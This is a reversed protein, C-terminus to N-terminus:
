ARASSNSRSPVARLAAFIVLGIWSIASIVGGLRFSRPDFAHKVPAVDPSPKLRWLAAGEPLPASAVPEAITPRADAPLIILEVGLRRLTTEDPQGRSGSQAQDLLAEYQASSIPRPATNVLPVDDLLAYRGALTQREWAVIEALRDDSSQASFEAPWWRGARFTRPREAVKAIASRERWLSAPATPVLWQNAVALDMACVLLLISELRPQFDSAYVVPAFGLLWAAAVAVLSMQILSSVIDTWAGFTDFPGFASDVAGAGLTVYHSAVGAAVAAIASGFGLIMLIRRLRTNPQSLARDWGLAALLSIGLSAVVFLKAPYRFLAYKPLLMTFLWYVGGVGDGVPFNSAPGAVLQISQRGLWGLGFTGFSGMVFILVLWSLWRVRSDAARLSFVTLGLVLPILGLYLSPTWIRSEEPLLSFWRRHTPYMRGGCNPWVLEALRWPGVSYDFAAAQHTGPQPPAVITTTAQARESVAAAEASPLIQVAALLCAATAAAALLALRRLWAARIPSSAPPERRGSALVLVYLGGLLLVHYAMQPDGGLILLALVVALWLASKVRRERFVDDILGVAVPLWAAGVLYVVNAHQFVVSGGGAYSMAALASGYVSAGWRRALWYAAAACLLVHGVVYLKFRVAFDVPLAFVLKGPYFVSATPDAIVSTGCNESANWLPMRGAAWEDACWKFLPYYYHGADRMAYLRDSFLAPAFMVALPLLVAAAAIAHETRLRPM